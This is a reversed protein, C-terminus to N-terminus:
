SWYISASGTDPDVNYGGAGGDDGSGVSPIDSPNSSSTGSTNKNGFISGAASGLQGITDIVSKAIANNDVGAQQAKLKDQSATSSPHPRLFFWYVAGAVAAGGVVLLATEGKTM